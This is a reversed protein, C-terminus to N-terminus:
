DHLKKKHGAKTRDEAQKCTSCKSVRLKTFYLETPETRENGAKLKVDSEGGYYQAGCLKCEILKITIM